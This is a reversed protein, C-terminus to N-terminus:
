EFKIKTVRCNKIAKSMEVKVAGLFKFSLNFFFFDVGFLLLQGIRKNISSKSYIRCKPRTDSM